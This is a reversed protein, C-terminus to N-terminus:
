TYLMHFDCPINNKAADKLTKCFSSYRKPVHELSTIQEEDETTFAEWNAKRFSWLAKPKSTILPVDMVIHILAPLHQSHPFHPLIKCSAHLPHGNGNRSVFCLDQNYDKRWRHSHFTSSDKADHLPYPDGASAWVVPQEGAKDDQLKEAYCYADYKEFPQRLGYTRVGPVGKCNGECGARPQNIPYRVSGDSLWGADCRDMGDHFAVLLQAPSALIGGSTVCAAHAAFHSLKYRGSDPRYHYVVGDVKLDVFDQGRTLADKVECVYRGADSQRLGLLTFTVNAGNTFSEHHVKARGTEYSMWLPFMAVSQVAGQDAVEVRGLYDSTIALSHGKSIMLCVIGGTASIRSLKVLPPVYRGESRFLCSISITSSLSAIIPGPPIM